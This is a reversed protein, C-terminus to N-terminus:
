VGLAERQTVRIGLPYTRTESGAMMTYDAIGAAAQPLGMRDVSGNLNRAVTVSNGTVTGQRNTILRTVLATIYDALMAEAASESGEVTYGMWVVMNIDFDVIGQVAFTGATPDGDPGIGGPDGITIWASIRNSLSEPAGIQVSEMAPITEVLAKLGNLAAELNLSM